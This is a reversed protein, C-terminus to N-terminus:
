RTCAPRVGSIVGGVKYSLHPSVCRLTIKQISLLTIKQTCELSLIHPLTMEMERGVNELFPRPLCPLLPHESSPSHSPCSNVDSHTKVVGIPLRSFLCQLKLYTWSQWTFRRGQFSLDLQEATLGLFGRQLTIQSPKTNACACEYRWSMHFRRLYCSVYLCILVFLCATMHVETYVCSVFRSRRLFMNTPSTVRGTLRANWLHYPCLPIPRSHFMFTQTPTESDLNHSCMRDDLEQGGRQGEHGGEGAEKRWAVNRTRPVRQFFSM